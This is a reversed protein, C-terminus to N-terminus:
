DTKASDQDKRENKAAERAQKANRKIQEDYEAQYAAQAKIAEDQRGRKRDQFAMPVVPGYIMFLATIFMGELSMKAQYKKVLAATVDILYDPQKKGQAFKMYREPEQGSILSGVWGFGNDIMGLVFIATDRHESNYDLLGLNEADNDTLDEGDDSDDDNVQDMLGSMPERPKTIDSMFASFDDEHSERPAEKAADLTTDATKNM